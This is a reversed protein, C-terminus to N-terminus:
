VKEGLGSNVQLICLGRSGRILRWLLILLWRSVTMLSTRRRRRGVRKVRMDGPFHSDSFHSDTIAWTTSPLTATWQASPNTGAIACKWQATTTQSTAQTAAKATTTWSSACSAPHIPVHPSSSAPTKSEPRHAHQHASPATEVWKTWLIIGVMNDQVIM